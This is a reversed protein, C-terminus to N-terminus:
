PRRSVRTRSISRSSRSWQPMTALGSHWSKGSRASGSTCASGPRAPSAWTCCRTTPAAPAIVPAPQNKNGFITQLVGGIAAGISQGAPPPTTADDGWGHQRAILTSKMYPM